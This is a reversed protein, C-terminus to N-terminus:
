SHFIMKKIERVPMEKGTWFRFALAGQYLLMSEGNMTKAGAKEAKLLLETERPEYITDAVFMGPRFCGTERLPCGPSSRMGVPTTNILIDSRSVSDKLREEDDFDILRVARGTREAVREVFDYAEDWNQNKRKFVDIEDAGDMACRALISRGAGGLGLITMRKGPIDCGAERAGRVWGSGDTSTGTLKGGINIVTNVSGCLEAEPTLTDCLKAMDNKLPMTLNWGCAGISKLGEVATSLKDRTVDFALYRSDIDLLRFSENHMLPSVSHAVPSGLLCYLSTKGGIPKKEGTQEGGQGYIASLVQRMPDLPIQGPASSSGSSAYTVSSGFFGGCIRSVIGEESMSILALPKDPFRKEAEAGAFLVELVDAKNRPMFAAKLVDADSERIKKLIELIEERGPTKSFDHRSGFVACGFGRIARTLEKVSINGTFSEIDIADVLGSRAVALNMKLYEEPEIQQKGGEASTRFTFLLPKEGCANRVDGLTKLLLPIDSAFPLYDARWELIDFRDFKLRAITEAIEGATYGFVPVIVKPLGEGITVGKIRVAKM